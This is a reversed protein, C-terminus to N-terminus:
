LHTSPSQWNPRWMSRTTNNVNLLLEKSYIQHTLPSSYLTTYPSAEACISQSRRRINMLNIPLQTVCKSYNILRSYYLSCRKKQTEEEESLFQVSASKLHLDPLHIGFRHSHSPSASQVSSESSSGSTHRSNSQNTSPKNIVHKTSSERYIYFKLTEGKSTFLVIIEISQNIEHKIKYCKNKKERM